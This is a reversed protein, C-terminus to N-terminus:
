ATWLEIRPEIETLDDVVLDPELGGEPQSAPLPSDVQRNRIYATHWGARSAGEIDAAWDDGVHLIREPPTALLVAAQRFIEPHPKITGIRQSVIVADLFPLWGRTEAYRDITSALPWNSLIALRFGRAALRRIVGDAEPLPAMTEVFAASYWGVAREVEAPKVLRGAAADDWAGGPTPPAMGRLRALVRVVRQGLDVEQFRPVSDRFQRDREEAWASLFAGVDNITGAAKLQDGTSRIVARLSPRDVRVLTNGFDLTVAGVAIPTEESRSIL